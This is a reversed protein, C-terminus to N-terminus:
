KRIFSSGPYINNGSFFRYCKNNNSSLYNVLLDGTIIFLLFFTNTILMFLIMKEAFIRPYLTFRSASTFDVIHTKM